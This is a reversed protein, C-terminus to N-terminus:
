GRLILLLKLEDALLFLGEGFLEEGGTSEQLLCFLVKGGERVLELFDPPLVFVGLNRGRGKRLLELYPLFFM